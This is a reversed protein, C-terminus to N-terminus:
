HHCLAIVVFTLAIQAAMFVWLGIAHGDHDHEHPHRLDDRADSKSKPKPKPIDRMRENSRTLADNLAHHASV